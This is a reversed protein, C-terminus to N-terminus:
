SVLRVFIEMVFGNVASILSSPKKAAEKRTMDVYSYISRAEELTPIRGGFWKAFAALEDYSAMVPWDLAHELPVLGYVTRVFKGHVFDESPEDIRLYSAHGNEWPKPLIGNVGNSTRNGAPISWSAPLREFSSQELFRAYEGNSIPRSQAEFEAVASRRSPRENDWGFFRDPGLDNEPDDLGLTIITAPVRHWKNAVRNQRAEAALSKFDPVPRGPPPVVRESQLLMYLFTELHMAEHEFALWLARGVKRDSEAFKTQRLVRQRVRVQYELMEELAPWTDPVESHAHCLEPNDM